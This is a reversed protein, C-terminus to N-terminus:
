AVEDMEANVAHAQSRTRADADILSTAVSSAVIRALEVPVANGIQRMTETWSGAFSYLDPFGQIRAAERTTFYRTKGSDLVVMNEGGPVGHVGAKLTKAPEDLNSGTHGPYAKSGSRLEHQMWGEVGGELPGPM